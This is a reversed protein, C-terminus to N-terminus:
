YQLSAQQLRKAIRAQLTQPALVKMNEGFGLIERELEFNPIVKIVIETGENTERIIQQSHHLPKTLVYPANEADIWLHVNVAKGSNVTVGIVDKYYTAADVVEKLNFEEDPQADIEVIRDLALTILNTADKKKGVVYWRNRYEKLLIPYFVMKGPRRAKFSQYWIDLVVKNIIAKYIPNIFQIGKLDDNKEIDIVQYSKNKESHIKDELKQVLGTLDSFYSFGTFHKLLEIAESMKSIENASIATNSISYGPDTYSYYKKDEVRIPANYGLKDGRMTQIDAQITRKSVRKKIGEYEYLADSCAEILDELTWRHTTNRLCNDITKYRILANKNVPM